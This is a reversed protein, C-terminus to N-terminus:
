RTRRFHDRRHLAQHDRRRDRRGQLGARACAAGWGGQAENHVLRVGRPLRPRADSAIVTSPDNLREEAATESATEPNEGELYLPLKGPLHVHMLPVGPIAAM